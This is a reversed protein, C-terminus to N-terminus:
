SPGIDKPESFLVMFEITVLATLNTATSTEDAAQYWLNFMAIEGPDNVTSAGLRAINDKVNVINFFKKASYNCSVTTQKDSGGNILRYTGKKAEVFTTYSTFGVTSDDSLYIGVCGSFATNDTQPVVRVSMRSGAVVYHNYFPTLQDWGYPQHGTSTFDPDYCGNARFQHNTLLGAASTLTLQSTYRLKAARQAPLFNPIGIRRALRNYRKRRYGKRTRAKRKKARWFRAGLAGM